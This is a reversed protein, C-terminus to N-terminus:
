VQFELSSHSKISNVVNITGELILQCVQSSMEDAISAMAPKTCETSSLIRSGILLDATVLDLQQSWGELKKANQILSMNVSELQTSLGKLNHAGGAIGSKIKLLRREVSKAYCEDAPVGNFRIEDGDDNVAMNCSLISEILANIACDNVDVCYQSFTHRFAVFRDIHIEVKQNVKKVYWKMMCANTAAKIMQEGTLHHPTHELWLHGSHSKQSVSYFLKRPIRFGSLYFNGPILFGSYPIFSIKPFGFDPIRFSFFPRFESYPIWFGSMEPVLRTSRKLPYFEIPSHRKIIRSWKEGYTVQALSSKLQELRENFAESNAPEPSKEIKPCKAEESAGELDSPKVAQRKKAVSAKVYNGSKTRDKSAAIGAGMTQIKQMLSESYECGLLKVNIFLQSLCQLQIKPYDDYHALMFARRLEWADDSEWVKKEAEVDELKGM